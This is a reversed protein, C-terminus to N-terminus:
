YALTTDLEWCQAELAASLALDLANAAAREEVSKAVSALEHADFISAQGAILHALCAIEQTRHGKTAVQLSELLGPLGTTWSQILQTLLERRGGLRALPRTWRSTSEEHDGPMKEVDGLVMALEARSVPKTLWHDFCSRDAFPNSEQAIAASLAILVTRPRAQESELTRIAAALHGGNMDPMQWDIIAADFSGECYKTIAEEGSAAVEVQHG